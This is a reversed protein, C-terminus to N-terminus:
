HALDFFVRYDVDFTTKQTNQDFFMSVNDVSITIGIIDLGALDVFEPGSSVQPYNRFFTTDSQSASGGPGGQDNPKFYSTYISLWDDVGNTLLEVIDDFQPTNAADFTISSGTDAHTLHATELVISLNEDCQFNVLGAATCFRMEIVVYGPMDDANGGVGFDLVAAENGHLRKAMAEVQDIRANLVASGGQLSAETALAIPTEGAKCDAASSVIQISGNKVCGHIINPDHDALAPVAGAALIALLVAVGAAMSDFTRHQKM